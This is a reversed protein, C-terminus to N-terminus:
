TEDTQHCCGNIFQGVPLNRIGNPAHELRVGQVDLIFLFHEVRPRAATTVRVNSLFANRRAPKSSGQFQTRKMASRLALM